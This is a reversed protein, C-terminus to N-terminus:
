PRRLRRRLSRLRGDACRTAPLLPLARDQDPQLVTLRYRHPPPWLHGKQGCYLIFLRYPCTSNPRRRRHRYRTPISASFTILGFPLPLAHPPPQDHAVFNEWGTWISSELLTCNRSYDAREPVRILHRWIRGRIHIFRDGRLHRHSQTGGVIKPPGPVRLEPPRRDQDVPHGCAAGGPNCPEGVEVLALVGDDRIQDEKGNRCQEDETEAIKSSQKCFARWRLRPEVNTIARSTM